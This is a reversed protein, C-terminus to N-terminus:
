RGINKVDPASIHKQPNSREISIKQKRNNDTEKIIETHKLEGNEFSLNWDIGEPTNSKSINSLSWNHNQLLKEGMEFLNNNSNLKYDIKLDEVYMNEFYVRLITKLSNISPKKIDDEIVKKFANLKIKDMNSTYKKLNEIDMLDQFKDELRKPKDEIIPKIIEKKKEVFPKEKKSFDELIENKSINNDRKKIPHKERTNDNKANDIKEAKDLTMRLMPDIKAQYENILDNINNDLINGNPYNNIQIDKYEQSSRLKKYQKEIRKLNLLNEKDLAKQIVEINKNLLQEKKAKLGIKLIDKDFLPSYLNMKKGSKHIIKLYKVGTKYDHGFGNFKIEKSKSLINEIDKLSKLKKDIIISEIKKTTRIKYEVLKENNKFDFNYTSGKKELREINRNPINEAFQKDRIHTKFGFEIELKDMILNLRKRDLSDMYVLLKQGNLLNTEPQLLHAHEKLEGKDTFSDSHKVFAAPPIEESLYNIFYEERFREQFQRWQNDTASEGVQLSFIFHSYKQNSDDMEKIIQETLEINASLDSILNNDRPKDKTGYLLYNVGGSKGGLVKGIM